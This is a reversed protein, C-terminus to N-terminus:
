NFQEEDDFDDQEEKMSGAYIQNLIDRVVKKTNRTFDKSLMWEAFSPDSTVLEGRHPGFNYRYKGDEDKIIKGAFDVRNDFASLKALEDIDDPLGYREIQAGFVRMTALADADASHANVLEEGLYFKCAAALTREEKRKFINGVDIFRTGTEPFDIGCRAFEECLIPIDFNNSNFGALDCGRLLKFLTEASEKFTAKDAVMENTIGHVKIVDESMKIGPNFLQLYVTEGFRTEEPFLTRISLSVIRDNSIDLGTAEIDFFALPKKLTLKM